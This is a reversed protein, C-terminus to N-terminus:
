WSDRIGFGLDRYSRGLHRRAIGEPRNEDVPLRSRKACAFAFLQHRRKLLQAPRVLVYDELPEGAAPTRPALITAAVGGLRRAWAVLPRRPFLPRGITALALRRRLRTGVRNGFRGRGFLDHDLGLRGLAPSRHPM